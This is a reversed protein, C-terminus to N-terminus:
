RRAFARKQLYRLRKADSSGKGDAQEVLGITRTLLAKAKAWEHRDLYFIALNELAIPLQADPAKKDSRELTAIARKHEAIAHM